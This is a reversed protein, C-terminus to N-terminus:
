RDFDLWRDESSKGQRSMATMEVTREPGNNSNLTMYGTLPLLRDIQPHM